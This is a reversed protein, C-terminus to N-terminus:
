TTSGNADARPAAALRRMRVVFWVLPPGLVLLAVAFPLLAGLVTASVALADTFADWGNHLGTTFGVARTDDTTVPAVPAEKSVLNVTITALSSQDRLKAQKALLADLDAERQAVESELAVIDRLTDAQAMLDRIRAVSKRQSDIRSRVDVVDNTVDKGTLNRDLVEGTRGIATLVEDFNEPPVRLKLTASSHDPEDATAAPSASRTSGVVLGGQAEAANEVQTVAKEVEPVRVTMAATYIIDRGALATDPVAGKVGSAKAKAGSAGGSSLNNSEVGNAKAGKQLPDAKAPKTAASKASRKTAPEFAGADM